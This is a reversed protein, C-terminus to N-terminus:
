PALSFAKKDLTLKLWTFGLIASVLSAILIAMKSQNVQEPEDFALMTIFISMTFGIGGLLGIGIIHKWKLEAPLTGIGLAVATFGFLFIGLPKGITLGTLIGLSHAQGISTRWDNSILICTNALAFLPLIFFAVPKHLFHQLISSPSKVGGNGFPVAFALLVGTITPHVGSHLMYYWMAMGGILYPILTYVKLRNLVLLSGFIAMAIGLSVWSLSGTYFIAIVIIAGLDDMVALAILMVKLSAPVRSGLLSLIAIAFAIDTAIPIGAGSQTPAGFNFILFFGAPVIMGGLAAMMPLVANRVTSLEGAYIERELELGILLFFVAMLGDNIWYEFTKGLIPAQWVSLYDHHLVSNCLLLSIVTCFVLLLGGAQESKIFENFLRTLKM